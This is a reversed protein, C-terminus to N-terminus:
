GDAHGRRWAGPTLGTRGRFVRTLHAQDAFGTLGAVEALSVVPDARLVEQARDIRLRIQWHLPTEGMSRKFAHAFWSESLGAVEALEAAPVRRHLNAVMHLELRRMQSPTLGGNGLIEDRGILLGAVIGQLLGESYLDHQAPAAVEEALLRALTEVRPSRDHLAARRLANGTPQARGLYRELARGDFHLDIHSFRCDARMRSWLPVGAPVYLVRRHEGAHKSGVPHEALQVATSADDLFIVIRPDPSLYYGRAGERAEAHWLDAVVGDFARWQLPRRVSVGEIVATMNPRFNM